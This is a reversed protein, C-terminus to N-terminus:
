LEVFNKLLKIGWNHSKEPHFQVGYIHENAVASTFEIGYNTTALSQFSQSPSFFYSHLFYFKPDIIGNFLKNPHVPSVDNWGMHPLYEDNPDFRRVEADFWGLGALAGEESRKAMMQMGVCIGLIPIKEKVVLATLTEQLGSSSLREMAWDFAGVGPLIIKQARSLEVPTSAVEVSINLRSYINRFAQINGIGYDIITVTASSLFCGWSNYRCSSIIGM